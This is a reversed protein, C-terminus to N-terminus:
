LGAAGTQQDFAPFPFHPRLDRTAGSSPVHPKRTVFEHTTRVSYVSGKTNLVHETPRPSPHAYGCQFVSNAECLPLAHKKKEGSLLPHTRQGLSKMLPPQSALRSATVLPQAAVTRDPQKDRPLFASPSTKLNGDFLTWMQPKIPRVLVHLLVHAKVYTRWARKVVRRRSQGTEVTGDRSDAIWTKVLNGSWSAPSM